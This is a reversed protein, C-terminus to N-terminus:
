RRERIRCIQGTKKQQWGDEGEPEAGSQESLRGLQLQVPTQPETPPAVPEDNSGDADPNRNPGAM